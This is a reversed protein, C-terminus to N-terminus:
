GTAPLSQSKPGQGSVAVSSSVPTQLQKLHCRTEAATQLPIRYWRDCWSEIRPSAQVLGSLPRPRTGPGTTPGTGPSTGSRSRNQGDNIGIVELERRDGRCSASPLCLTKTLEFFGAPLQGPFDIQKQTNALNQQM